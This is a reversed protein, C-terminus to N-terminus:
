WSCHDSLGKCECSGLPDSIPWRRLCRLMDAVESAYDLEREKANRGARVGERTTKRRLYAAEDEIIRRLEKGYDHKGAKGFSGFNLKFTFTKLETSQRLVDLAIRLIEIERDFMNTHNLGFWVHVRRMGSLYNLATSTVAHECISWNSLDLTFGDKCCLLDGLEANIQECSQSLASPKDTSSVHKLQKKDGELAEYIMIRLKVPLGLLSAQKSHQNEM